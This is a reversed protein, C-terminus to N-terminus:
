NCNCFILCMLKLRQFIKLEMLFDMVLVKKLRKKQFLLIMLILDKILSQFSLILKLTAEGVQIFKASPSKKEKDLVDSFNLDSIFDIFSSVSSESSISNIDSPLQM